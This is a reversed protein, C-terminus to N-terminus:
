IILLGLFIHPPNTSFSIQYFPGQAVHDTLGFKLTVFLINKPRPQLFKYFISPLFINKYKM